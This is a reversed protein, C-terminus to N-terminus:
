APILQRIAAITATRDANLAAVVDAKSALDGIVVQRQDNLTIVVAPVSLQSM